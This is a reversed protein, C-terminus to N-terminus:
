EGTRSVRARAVAIERKGHLVVVRLKKLTEAGGGRAGRWWAAKLSIKCMCVPWHPLWILVLHADFKPHSRAVLVADAAVSLKAAAVVRLWRLEAPDVQKEV